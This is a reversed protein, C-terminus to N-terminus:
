PSVCRALAKEAAQLRRKVTALSLGMREAVEELPLEEVKRLVLAIREQPALKHLMSYITRLEASVDPPADASVVTDPDIPEAARLGLRVLLRRRRLRNHAAHVAISAIWSEFAQPRKLRRLMSFASVFTDQVLDDVDADRGLLRFALGNVMRAHRRFLAEEAWRQGSLAAEVLVADTLEGETEGAKVRLNM